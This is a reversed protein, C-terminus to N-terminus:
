LEFREGFVRKTILSIYKMKSLLNISRIAWFLRCAMFLSEQFTKKQEMEIRAAQLSGFGIG